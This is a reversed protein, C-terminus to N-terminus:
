SFDYFGIMHLLFLVVVCIRFWFFLWMCFVICCMKDFVFFLSGVNGFLWVLGILVDRLDWFFLFMGEVGFM